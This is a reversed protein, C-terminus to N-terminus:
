QCFLFFVPSLLSKALKKASKARSVENKVPDIDEPLCSQIRGRRALLNGGNTM